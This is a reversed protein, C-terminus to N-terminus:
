LGTAAAYGTIQWCSECSHSSRRRIAPSSYARRVSLHRRSLERWCDSSSYWRDLLGATTMFPLLKWTPCISPRASGTSAYSSIANVALYHASYKHRRRQGQAKSENHSLATM